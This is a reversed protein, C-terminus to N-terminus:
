TEWPIEESERIGLIELANNIEERADLLSNGVSLAADDTLVLLPDELGLEQELKEVAENLKNSFSEKQHKDLFDGFVVIKAM